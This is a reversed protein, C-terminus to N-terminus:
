ITRKMVSRIIRASFVNETKIRCLTATSGCRIWNRNAQTAPLRGSRSQCFFTRAAFSSCYRCYDANLIKCTCTKAEKYGTTCFNADEGRLIRAGVLLSCKRTPPHTSRRSSQTKEDSFAHESSFVVNERRLIRAGVLLNRKRTPSPTSQRSSQTKEDSFARESSFFANERRLPRAGVLLHTKEDSCASESSFIAHERRRIRANVFLNCKRTSPQTRRRFSQMKENTRQILDLIKSDM